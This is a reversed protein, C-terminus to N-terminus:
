ANVVVNAACGSTRPLVNLQTVIAYEVPTLAFDFVYSMQWAGTTTDELLIDGGGELDLSGGGELDLSGGSGEQVYCNGRGPFLNLLIQNIAPISGDCINFAAKALIALRYANDSLTVEQTLNEGSYFPGQGFGQYGGQNFGFYATTPVTVTNIVGIRRGWILLGWGVATEINWIDDYFQDLDADVSVYQEINLCLQTLAPSNVYETIVTQQAILM